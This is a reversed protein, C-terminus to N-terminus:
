CRRAIIVKLDKRLLFALSAKQQVAIRCHIELCVHRGKLLSKCPTECNLIAPSQAAMRNRMTALMSSHYLLRSVVTDDCM